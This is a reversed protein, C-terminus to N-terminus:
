TPVAFGHKPRRLTVAPLLDAVARKFVYKMQRGRIKLNSPLTAANVVQSNDLDFVVIGGNGTDEERIAAADPTALGTDSRTPLTGGIGAALVFRPNLPDPVYVRALASYEWNKGTFQAPSHLLLIGHHAVGGDVLPDGVEPTTPDAGYRDVLELLRRNGGDAVLTHVWYELPQPNSFVTNSAATVFETFSLVDRPSNFNLPEGSRYGEPAFPTGNSARRGLQFSEISREERGTVSLQVLRNAATDVVITDTPGFAYARTPRVLPHVNGVAGLDRSAGSELSADSSWLPSGGSDFRALRGEDAVIFEAPTYEFLGTITWAILAGDGAVVGSASSDGNLVPQLALQDQWQQLTLPTSALQEAIQPWRFNPNPAYGGGSTDAWWVQSQWPRAPDAHTFPDDLGIDSAIGILTAHEDITGTALLSPLTSSGAVYVTDGTVKPGRSANYGDLCAYWLLPSWTGGNADPWLPIDPQGSQRILIPQSESLANTVPGRTTGMLNDMHIVAYGSAPDKEFSYQNAQFLSFRSPDQKDDSATVDYQLIQFGPDLNLAGVRIEVPEPDARLAM